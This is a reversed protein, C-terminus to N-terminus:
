KSAWHYSLTTTWINDFLHDPEYFYENWYELKFAWNKSIVRTIGARYRVRQVHNLENLRYFVDLGVNPKWKEWVKLVLTPIYRIFDADDRDDITLAYHIRLKNQLDFHAFSTKHDGDLWLFQRIRNDPLFWTRELFTLSFSSGLRYKISADISFNQYSRLENHFRITPKLAVSWKDSLNRTVQISNWTINDRKQAELINSGMVLVLFILLGKVVRM